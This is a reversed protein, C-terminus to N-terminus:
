DVLSMNVILRNRVKWGAYYSNRIRKWSWCVSKKMMRMRSEKEKETASGGIGM